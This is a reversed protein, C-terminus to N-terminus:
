IVYVAAFGGGASRFNTTQGQYLRAALLQITGDYSYARVDVKYAQRQPGQVRWREGPPTFQQAV